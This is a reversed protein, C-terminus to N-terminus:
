ARLIVVDVAGTGVVAIAAGRNGNPASRSSLKATKTVTVASDRGAPSRGSITSPRCVSGSPTPSRMETQASVTITM